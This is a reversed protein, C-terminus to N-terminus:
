VFSAEIYDITLVSIAFIAVNWILQAGTVIMQTAEKNFRFFNLIKM